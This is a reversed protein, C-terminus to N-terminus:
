FGFSASSFFRLFTRLIQEEFSLLCFGDTQEVLSANYVKRSTRRNLKEEESCGADCLYVPCASSPSPSSSFTLSLVPLSPLFRASKFLCVLATVSSARDFLFAKREERVGKQAQNRLRAKRESQGCVDNWEWFM